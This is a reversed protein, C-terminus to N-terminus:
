LYDADQKFNTYIYHISWSFIKISVVQDNMLDFVLYLKRINDWLVSKFQVIIVGDIWYIVVWVIAKMIDICNSQIWTSYIWDPDEMLVYGNEVFSQFITCNFWLYFVVKCGFVNEVKWYEFTYRTFHPKLVFQNPISFYDRYFDAENAVLRFDFLYLM